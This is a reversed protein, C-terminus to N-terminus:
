RNFMEKVIEELLSESNELLVDISRYKYLVSSLTESRSTLQRSQQCLENLIQCKGIESYAQKILNVIDDNPTNKSASQVVADYAHDSISLAEKDSFSGRESTPQPCVDEKFILHKRSKKLGSFNDNGFRIPSPTESAGRKCIGNSRYSDASNRILVTYDACNVIKNYCNRCVGADQEKLYNVLSSGLIINLKLSFNEAIAKRGNLKYIRNTSDFCTFCDIEKVKMHPDAM